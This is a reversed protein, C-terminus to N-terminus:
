QLYGNVRPRVEVSDVAEFRATYEDWEMVDRAVPQMIAVKPAPPAQAPPRGCASVLVLIVAAARLGARPPATPPRPRRMPEHSVQTHAGHPNLGHGPLAPSGM